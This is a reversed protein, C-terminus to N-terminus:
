VDYWLSRVSFMLIKEWVKFFIKYAAM